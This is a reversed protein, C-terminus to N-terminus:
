THHTHLGDTPQSLDKIFDKTHQEWNASHKLKRLFTETKSKWDLARFVERVTTQPYASYFLSSRIQHKKVYEKFPGVPWAGPYGECFGFIKDLAERDFDSFDDLYEDWTGDFNSTFLLRSDNDIIVWRAYHVKKINEIPSTKLHQVTQLLQRLMPATGPKLPAITTMETINNGLMQGVENM